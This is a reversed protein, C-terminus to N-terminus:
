VALIKQSLLVLNFPFSIKKFDIESIGAILHQGIPWEVLQLPRYECFRKSGIERIILRDWVFNQSNWGV